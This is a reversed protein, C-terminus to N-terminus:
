ATAVEDLAPDRRLWAVAIWVCLVDRLLLLGTAGWRV